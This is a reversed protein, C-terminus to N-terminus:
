GYSCAFSNGFIPFEKKLYFKTLFGASKCNNKRNSRIAYISLLLCLIALAAMVWFVNHFAQVFHSGLAPSIYRVNPLQAFLVASAISIGLSM